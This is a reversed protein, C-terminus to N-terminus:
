TLAEAVVRSFPANTREGISRLTIVMVIVIMILLLVYEVLSAGREANRGGSPNAVTGKM